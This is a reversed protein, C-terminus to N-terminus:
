IVDAFQREMHAFWALGIVLLVAGCASSYLASAPFSPGGVASWRVAELVGTLPNALFAWHLGAPVKDLGYAVPSAFLLLQVVVPLVYQVDRFRVVLASLVLGAGIGQAVLVTVWLPLTVLEWGFEGGSALVLAILVVVSVSFDVFSSGIASFPMIVRPFFVKSVLEKNALLAMSSRTLVNYFLTWATLGAFAFVFYSNGDSSFGAVKGFVVTFVGAALLPQLVVWAVGLLTQRYRLTLDRATFQKLLDRYSWVAVLNLHGLGRPPRISV